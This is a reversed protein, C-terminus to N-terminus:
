ISGETEVYFEKMDELRLCALRGGREYSFVHMRIGDYHGALRQFILASSHIPASALSLFDGCPSCM